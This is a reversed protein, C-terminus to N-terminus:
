GDCQKIEEVQPVVKGVEEYMDLIRGTHVLVGFDM